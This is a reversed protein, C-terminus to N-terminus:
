QLYFVSEFFHCLFGKLPSFEKQRQSVALCVLPFMSGRPFQPAWSGAVRVYVAFYLWFIFTFEGWTIVQRNEAASQTGGQSVMAAIVQPLCSPFLFHTKKAAPLPPPHLLGNRVLIMLHIHWMDAFFLSARWRMNKFAIGGKLCKSQALIEFKFGLDNRQAPPWEWM